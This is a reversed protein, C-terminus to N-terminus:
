VLFSLKVFKNVILLNCRITFIGISGSPAEQCKNVIHANFNIQEDIFAIMRALPCVKELSM